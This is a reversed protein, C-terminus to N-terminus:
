TSVVSADLADLECICSLAVMMLRNTLRGRQRNSLREIDSLDLYQKMVGIQRRMKKKSAKRVLNGVQEIPTTLGTFSIVAPTRLDIGDIFLDASFDASHEMNVALYSLVIDLSRDCDLQLSSGREACKRLAFPVLFVVYLQRVSQCLSIMDDTTWGHHDRSTKYNVALTMSDREVDAESLKLKSMIKEHIRELNEIRTELAEIKKPLTPITTSM